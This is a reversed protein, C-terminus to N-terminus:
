QRGYAERFIGALKEGHGDDRLRQGLFGRLDSWFEESKLIEDASGMQAEPKTEAEAQAKESEPAPTQSDIEMMQPDSKEVTPSSAAPTTASPTAGGGMLMVTFEVNDGTIGLDSLTKLDAAPKKNLLIKIKDQLQGSIQAYQTKVDHVTSTLTLDSITVTEGGRM